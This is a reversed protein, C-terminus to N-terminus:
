ERNRIPSCKYPHGAPYGPNEEPSKWPEDRETIKAAPNEPDLEWRLPNEVIYQRIRNLEEDNRIVREYYSRQWIPVGSTGRLKNIKKTSVTKFAGVLQGLPKRKFTPAARSGGRCGDAIVLIGHLHNPMVVSFDQSVHDYQMSLWEWSEAIITGWANLRMKGGEIEGFVSFHERACITVFYAGTRSYDYEKLRISRRTSKESKTM